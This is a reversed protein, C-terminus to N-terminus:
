SVKPIVPLTTMCYKLLKKTSHEIKHLYLGLNEKIIQALKKELRIIPPTKISCNQLMKRLYGESKTKFAKRITNKIMLSGFQFVFNKLKQSKTLKLKLSTNFDKSFLLYFPHINKIGFLLKGNVETNATKREM